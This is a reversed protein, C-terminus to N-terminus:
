ASSLFCGNFGVFICPFIREYGFFRIISCARVAHGIPRLNESVAVLRNRSFHRVFFARVILMWACQRSAVLRCMHNSM